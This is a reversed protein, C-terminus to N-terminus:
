PGPPSKKRERNKAPKATKFEEAVPMMAVTKAFRIAEDRGWSLGKPSVAYEYLDLFGRHARPGSSALERALKLADSAILEPGGKRTLNEFSEIWAKSVSVGLAAPSRAVEAAFEGCDSRAMGSREPDSCWRVLREFDRSAEAPSGKFEISLKRALELSRDLSLDLGDSASAIRFVSVFAEQVADGAVATELAIRSRDKRNAGALSLTKSTRIYRKAAGQCGASIKRALELAEPDKLQEEPDSKLFSHATIFERPAGCEETASALPITHFLGVLLLSPIVM